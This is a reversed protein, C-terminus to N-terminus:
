HGSVRETTAQMLRYPTRTQVMYKLPEVAIRREVSLVHEYLRSLNLTIAIAIM